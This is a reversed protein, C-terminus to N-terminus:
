EPPLIAVLPKDWSMSGSLQRSDFDERTTVTTEGSGPNYVRLNGDETGTVLVIHAGASDGDVDYTYVPVAQGNDAARAIRDFTELVKPKLEAEM